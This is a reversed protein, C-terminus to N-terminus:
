SLFNQIQLHMLLVKIIDISILEDGEIEYFSSKTEYKGIDYEVVFKLTKYLNIIDSYRLVSRLYDYHFFDKLLSLISCYKKAMISSILYYADLYTSENTCFYFMFKFFNLSNKSDSLKYFYILGSLIDHDTDESIGLSHIIQHEITKTYISFNENESVTKSLFENLLFIMSRCLCDSFALETRSNIKIDLELLNQGFVTLVRLLSQLLFLQKDNVLVTSRFLIELINKIDEIDFNHKEYRCILISLIKIQAFIPLNHSFLIDCVNAVNSSKSHVILFHLNNHLWRRDEQLKGCNLFKVKNLNDRISTVDFIMPYFYPLDSLKLFHSIEQLHKRIDTIKKPNTTCLFSKRFKYYLEQLLLIFNSLINKRMNMFNRKLFEKIDCIVSSIEQVRCLAVFSQVALKGYQHEYEKIINIFIQQFYSSIKMFTKSFIKDKLQSELFYQFIIHSREDLNESTLINFFYGSLQPYLQFLDSIDKLRNWLGLSVGYMREILAKTLQLNANRFYIRLILYTIPINNM